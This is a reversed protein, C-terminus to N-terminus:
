PIMKVEIPTEPKIKSRVATQIARGRAEAPSSCLDSPLAYFTRAEIEGTKRRPLGLLRRLIASMTEKGRMKASLFEWVTADIRIVKGPKDAKKKKAQKSM